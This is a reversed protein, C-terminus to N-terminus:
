RHARPDVLESGCAEYASVINPAMTITITMRCRLNPGHDTRIEIALPEVVSGFSYHKLLQTYYPINTM